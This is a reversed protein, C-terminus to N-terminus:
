YHFCDIKRNAAKKIESKKFDFFPTVWSAHMESVLRGVPLRDFWGEDGSSIM